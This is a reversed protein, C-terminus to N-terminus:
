DTLRLPMIVCLYEEGDTEESPMILGASVPTDLKFVIDDSEIREVVDLLYRFDYATDLTEGDYEAPVEEKAEGGIDHSSASLEVFGPRVSFRIQRTTANSLVAVRRM